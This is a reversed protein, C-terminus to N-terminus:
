GDGVQALMRRIVREYKQLVTEWQFNALVYRRGNEGMQRGVKERTFLYDVTGAFEPYQNFYLGGDSKLCHEKTVACRGHVLVPRGAVWSEMLVISFSEHVSPQCTAVAAAYADYKDQLPVFGLDVVVDQLDDPLAFEGPGILVLKHTCGPREGVYRRWYDVLLPLNKGAIKRGAYLLFRSETLGYKQRFREADATFDSEVGMGIVQRCQDHPAGYLQESLKGEAESLFILSNVQPIVEKFVGMRAYAEDHLCPIIATREPAIQGGLFTTPFMYPIPLFLYDAQQESMYAFLAPARFMENLFTQEQAATLREGVMLKQNLEAFVGGDRGEVPFRRVVVGNEETVGALHVNKEWDAFFDRICTTLVEVPWGRAALREATQRTLAEMGGPIKGYWPTVFAIKMM